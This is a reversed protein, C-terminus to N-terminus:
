RNLYSGNRRETPSAIGLFEIWALDGGELFQEADAQKDGGSTRAIPYVFYFDNTFSHSVM